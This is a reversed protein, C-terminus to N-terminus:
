EAVTRLLGRGPLASVRFPTRAGEPVRFVDDEAPRVHSPGILLDSKGRAPPM